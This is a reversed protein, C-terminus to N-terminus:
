SIYGQKELNVILERRTLTARLDIVDRKADRVEDMLKGVNEEMKKILFRQAEITKRLVKDGVPRDGGHGSYAIEAHGQFLDTVPYGGCELAIILAESVGDLEEATPNGELTSNWGSVTRRLLDSPDALLSFPERAGDPGFGTAGKMAGARECDRPRGGDREVKGGEGDLKYSQEVAVGALLDFGGCDFRPGSDTAPDGAASNVAWPRDSGGDGAHEGETEASPRFCEILAVSHPSLWRAPGDDFNSANNRFVYDRIKEWLKPKPAATFYGNRWTRKGRLTEPVRKCEDRM